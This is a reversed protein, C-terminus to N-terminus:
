RNPTRLAAKGSATAQNPIHATKEASASNVKALYEMELPSRLYSSGGLRKFEEKALLNMSKAAPSFDPNAIYLTDFKLGVLTEFQVDAGILSPIIQPIYIMQPQILLPRISPFSVTGPSIQMGRIQLPQIMLPVINPLYIQAPVITPIYVQQPQVQNLRIEAYVNQFVFLVTLSLILGGFRKLRQM